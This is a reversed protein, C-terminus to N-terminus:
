QERGSALVFGTAYGIAVVAQALIALLGVLPGTRFGARMLGLRTPSGALRAGSRRFRAAGRGYRFQQRLLGRLGLAQDHRVVAAPEFRLEAGAATARACWDRDEGAADPFREDFPVRALLARSVALNSTPAFGLTGDARLSRRQLESTLVQSAAAFPNEPNANVTAGAVAGAPPCAAALRAAWEPEPVCDDDTFLVVDGHARAAGANRAVAPGRGSGDESVIADVAITQKDLAALCRRLAQSRRRTPIVVAITQSESM